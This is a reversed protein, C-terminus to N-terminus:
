GNSEKEKLFNDMKDLCMSVDEPMLPHIKEKWHLVRVDPRTEKAMDSLLKIKTGLNFVGQGHYRILKVILKTITPTYDFNGIQYPVREYQYPSQKFSTRITLFDLSNAELYIDSAWKSYGYWTAVPVCLDEEKALSHSGAYVYDTSINVLYKFENNCYNALPILARYNTNWNEDKEEAYTKTCGICNVIVNYKELYNWYNDFDCIDFHNKKRSIYDWGTQKIMESGLRGDGLILYKSIM